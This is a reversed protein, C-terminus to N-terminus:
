RLHMRHAARHQATDKNHPHMRHLASNSTAASAVNGANGRRQYSQVMLASAEVLRGEDELRQVAVLVDEYDSAEAPTDEAAAAAAGDDTARLVEAKPPTM